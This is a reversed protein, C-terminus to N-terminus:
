ATVTEKLLLKEIVKPYHELELQRVRAELTATTDGPEVSCKAQFIIEGEDFHENVYHVTIGTEEENAKLVSEHVRKGFLGRGGHKPLLAPHINIIKDPFEDLLYKPILWLFGALVIFGIEHRKLVELFERPEDLNKQTIVSVPIAHKRAIDLVGADPNNCVVMAVSIERNGRFYNIIAEANTGKGSAFIALHTM